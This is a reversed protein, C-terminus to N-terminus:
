GGTYHVGFKVRYIDEYDDYLVIADSDEVPDFLSEM